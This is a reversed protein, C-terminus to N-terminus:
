LEGKVIADILKVLDTYVPIGLRKAEEVERDAGPSEGPLRYVAQCAGVWALGQELWFEYPRPYALHWFAMLHPVFPIGGREAIIDAMTVAKQINKVVDGKSYPGALYIRPKSSLALARRTRRQRVRRARM